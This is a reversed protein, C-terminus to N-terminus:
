SPPASPSIAASSEARVSTREAQRNRGVTSPTSSSTSKKASNEMSLSFRRGSVSCSAAPAACPGDRHYVAAAGAYMTHKMVPRCACFSPPSRRGKAHASPMTPSIVHSMASMM